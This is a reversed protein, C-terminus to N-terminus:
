THLLIFSFDTSTWVTGGREQNSTKYNPHTPPDGGSIPPPVSCSLPSLNLIKLNKKFIQITIDLCKSQYFPWHSCYCNWFLTLSSPFINICFYFICFEFQILVLSITFAFFGGLVRVGIVWIQKLLFIWFKSYKLRTRSMHKQLTTKSVCNVQILHYHSHFIKKSYTTLWDETLWTCTHLIRHHNQILVSLNCFM